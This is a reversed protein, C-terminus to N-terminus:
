KTVEPEVTAFGELIRTVVSGSVMEIDYRYKAAVLNATVNPGLQAAAEGEAENTVAVTFSASPAADAFNHRLDGRLTFDGLDVPCGDNRLVQFPLQFTTGQDIVVDENQAM